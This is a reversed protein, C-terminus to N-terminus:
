LDQIYCSNEDFSVIAKTDKTLKHVFLLNMSYGPVVFVDYLMVQKNLKLNGIKTVVACTGNPHKETVNFESVDIQNLIGKDSMVMYLNAGTDLIWGTKNELGTSKSFCFIPKCFVNSSFFRSMSDAVNNSLHSEGIRENLLSL